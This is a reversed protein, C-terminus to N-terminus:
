FHPQVNQEACIMRAEMTTVYPNKSVQIFSSTGSSERRILPSSGELVAERPIRYLDGTGVDVYAGPKDIDRWTMQLHRFSQKPKISANEPQHAM